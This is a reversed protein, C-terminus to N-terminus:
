APLPRGRGENRLASLERRGSDRAEGSRNTAMWVVELAIAAAILYDTRMVRLDISLGSSEGAGRASPPWRLSVNLTLLHPRASNSM